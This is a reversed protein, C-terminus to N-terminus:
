KRIKFTFPIAVWVAAPEGDLIAPRFQWLVAARLASENFIPDDSKMVIGRKVNGTKTVWMKVWVIGELGAKRAQNPYDPSVSILPKPPMEVALSDLPPVTSLSDVNLVEASDGMIKIILSEYRTSDSCNLEIGILLIM